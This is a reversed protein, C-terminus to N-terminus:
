ICFQFFSDGNAKVIKTAIDNSHTYKNVDLPAIEKLVTDTSVFDFLLTEKNGFTEKIMQISSYNKYKKIGRAVAHM